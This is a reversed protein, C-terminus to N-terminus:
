AGGKAPVRRAAIEAVTTLALGVAGAILFTWAPGTLLYVGLMAAVGCAIQLFAFIM